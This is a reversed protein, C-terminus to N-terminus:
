SGGMRMYTTLQCSIIDDFFLALTHSVGLTSNAGVGVPNRQVVHERGRFSRYLGITVCFLMLTVRQVMRM